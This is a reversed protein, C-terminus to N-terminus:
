RTSGPSQCARTTLARRERWGGEGEDLRGDARSFSCSMHKITEPERGRIEYGGLSTSLGYLVPVKRGQRRWTSPSIPMPRGRSPARLACSDCQDLGVVQRLYKTGRAESKPSRQSPWSVLWGHGDLHKLQEVKV